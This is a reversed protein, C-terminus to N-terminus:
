RLAKKLRIIANSLFQVRYQAKFLENKVFVLVEEQLPLEM